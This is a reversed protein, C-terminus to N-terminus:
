TELPITAVVRTGGAAGAGLELTGGLLEVRERMGRLGLGPRLERPLGPGGDECEIRVTGNRRSACVRVPAGPAHRLANSLAEQLVRYAAIKVPQSADPMPGVERAVPRGTKREHDECARDVVADLTLPVLDPLALGTALARVEALASKIGARAISGDGRPMAMLAAALDQALGDHLERAVRRRMGEDTEAREAGVERLRRTTRRLDAVAVELARRQREITDSGARVIGALLAYMLLTAAVIITWTSARARALEAELVDVRQYFEAVAIIRDTSPQRIPIYTEILETALAREYAHEEQRLPTRHSVVGGALAKQLGASAPASGIVRPDTAHVITGEASWIKISAVSRAVSAQELVGALALRDAEGLRGGGGLPQLHHAILAEVYLASDAAVRRLVSTEIERTVWTGLVLAGAVLIAASAIAFRSALSLRRWREAM